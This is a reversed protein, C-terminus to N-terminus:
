DLPDWSEQFTNRGLPIAGQVTGEDSEYVNRCDLLISSSSPRHGNNKAMTLDHHWAEPSLEPEADKWDLLGENKVVVSSDWRTFM